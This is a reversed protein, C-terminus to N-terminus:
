EDGSVLWVTFRLPRVPTLRSEMCIEVFVHRLAMEWLASEVDIEDGPDIQM